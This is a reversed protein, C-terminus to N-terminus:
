VSEEKGGKDDSFCFVFQEGGFMAKMMDENIAGGDVNNALCILMQGDDPDIAFFGGYLM